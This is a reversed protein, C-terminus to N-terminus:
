VAVKRATKEIIEKMLKAPANARIGRRNFHTPVAIYGEQQLQKIVSRTSPSPLAYKDCIKDIVYYTTPADSENEALFLMKSIRKGQRLKRRQLENQM